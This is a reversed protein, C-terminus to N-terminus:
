LSFGAKVADTRFMQVTELSFTDLDKGVLELKKLIDNTATIIDCGVADAQFINLLERPSAWLLEANPTMRTLERAAAMLPVPDRGTDAIRGAFVSVVAAPGDALAQCTDRVQALTMVATVNLKVGAKALRGILPISSEQRTNTIPIKVYVQDGWSRILSAQREMEDFEDSFVEFSIPRDPIASVIERAFAVYDAIGAKRMLTPNTTFGQIRPNRYMDLMGAKDAGDAFLKIRLADPSPPQDQTAARTAGTPQGLIWTVGEELTRVTSDAPPMPRDERYDYDIFVTRCGARRGAEVDRWRDGVMVSAALDLDLQRAAETLLGPAPKRCPCADRDDHYCVLLADLGVARGVARNLDDATARSQRGRAVDPQNTVGVTVYGARKLRAVLPAAQPAVVLDAVSAPPYPRGDRVVAENLVGDRDLFVARRRRAASTLPGVGV